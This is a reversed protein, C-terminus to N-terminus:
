EVDGKTFRFANLEIWLSFEKKKNCVVQDQSMIKQRRAIIRSFESETQRIGQDM